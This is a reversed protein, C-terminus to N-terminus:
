FAARFAMGFYREADRPVQYRFGDGSYTTVYREDTLNKGILSVRYKDDNFSFSVSANLMDYSPLLSAPNMSGSNSPLDAYQEATHVFSGNWIVDMGNGPVLYEAVLTYKLDPAFPVPLGSRTSCNAAGIPCNFKDIEAEISAIGGILTLNEIPRWTFDLEIGQTSVDGANTLRTICAGDTCDFNNAQFDSIDMKFAAANFMLTGSTYKYGVEMSESTEDSIPRSDNGNAAMNYYVNFGPGKYGQSLTAYMMSDENLDYQLGIKGSVNTEDASGAFDTNETAPRVGVARRGYKDNSRRVHTYSVEDSTYRLGYLVRLDDSINLKGDGFLAYNDFETTMYATASVIDDANCTVGLSETYAGIDSLAATLADGTLNQNAYWTMAQDLQGANNQCSADRTFNRESNINWWFAGVQYEHF